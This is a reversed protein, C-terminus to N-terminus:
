RSRASRSWARRATTPAGGPWRRTRPRTSCTRAATAAAGSGRSASWRSCTTSTSPTRPCSASPDTWERFKEAIWTLQMVPSDTLGYAVSLPRTTQVQLYGFDEARAAKLGEHREKEEATLHDTPPTYATAIAGPDTTVLSAIVRDGADLCLQESIGAGVDGGFVAYREYGLARMIRDFAEATRAIDWGHGTSRPRSGSAPSRRRWSTSRRVTPPSPWPLPALEAFEVFSAPYGHCLLLPDRGRPQLARAPRPGAPRRRGRPVAAHPQPAAGPRALRLRHALARRAAARLVRPAASGARRSTPRGAPAASGSPWTRSRPTAPDRDRVTPHGHRTRERPTTRAKRALGCSRPTDQVPVVDSLRARGSGAVSGAHVRHAAQPRADPPVPGRVRARHAVDAIAEGHQLRAVAERARDIRRVQRPSMGTAHTFHREVSRASLPVPGGDLAAEVVDDHALLGDHAFSEVLADVLEDDTGPFPWASGGLLFLGPSPMALRETRDRMADVPVHTFYAGPAFRIGVNRNGAVYPVPTPQTSPGSLLVRNGDATITFIMDWRADASALYDRREHGPHAVRRRRVGVGFSAGRVPFSMGTSRLGAGCNQGQKSRRASRFDRDIDCWVPCRRM